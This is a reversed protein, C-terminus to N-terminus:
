NGTIGFAEFADRMKYKPESSTEPKSLTHKEPNAYNNKQYAQKNIQKENDRSLWHTIFKRWLKKSKAKQPNSLCWETMVLLQQTVNTAPYASQWSQIDQQSINQFLRLEFSFFIEKVRLPSAPQSNEDDPGSEAIEKNSIDSSIDKKGKNKETEIKDRDQRLRTENTTETSQLILDLTDKHCISLVTKTHRVEQRLFGCLIFKKVSREIDNKTIQPHCLKALQRYTVCWQGPQLDLIIGHDDHKQNKYCVNQLIVLFIHQYHFPLELWLPNTLLSRPIKLYGNDSM